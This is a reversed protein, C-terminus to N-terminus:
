VTVAVAVRMVTMLIAGAIAAAKVTTESLAMRMAIIPVPVDKVIHLRIIHEQMPTLMAEYVLREFERRTARKLQSRADKSKQNM